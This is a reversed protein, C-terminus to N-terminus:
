HQSGVLNISNIEKHLNVEKNLDASKIESTSETPKKIMEFSHWGTNVWHSHQSATHDRLLVAPITQERIEVHSQKVTLLPEDNLPLQQTIPCTDWVKITTSIKSIRNKGVRGLPSATNARHRDDRLSSLTCALLSSFPGLNVWNLPFLFANRSSM